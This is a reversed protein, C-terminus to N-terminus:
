ERKEAQEPGRRLEKEWEEISMDSYLVTDCPGSECRLMVKHGEPNDKLPLFMLDSGCDPCKPRDYGDFMAPLRNGAQVTSIWLDRDQEALLEQYLIFAHTLNKGVVGSNIFIRRARAVAEVRDRFEQESMRNM